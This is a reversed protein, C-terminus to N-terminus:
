INVKKLDIFFDNDGRICIIIKEIEYPKSQAHLGRFVNKKSTSFFVEDVKPM